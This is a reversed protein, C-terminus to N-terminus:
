PAAEKPAILQQTRFLKAYETQNDWPLPTTNTKHTLIFTRLEEPKDLLPFIEAMSPNEDRYWLEVLTHEGTKTYRSYSEGETCEGNGSWSFVYPIGAAVLKDHYSLRCYNSEFGFTVFDEDNTNEIDSADDGLIAATRNKDVISVQLSTYSWDGM